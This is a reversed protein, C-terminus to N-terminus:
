YQAVASRGAGQRHLGAKVIRKDFFRPLCEGPIRHFNEFAPLVHQLAHQGLRARDINVNQIATPLFVIGYKRPAVHTIQRAIRRYCGKGALQVRLNLLHHRLVPRNIANRQRQMGALSHGVIARQQLLHVKRKGRCPLFIKLQQEIQRCNECSVVIHIRKLWIESAVHNPSRQKATEDAGIDIAHALIALLKAKVRLRESGNKM